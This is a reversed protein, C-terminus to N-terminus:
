FFFTKKEDNAIKFLLFGTAILRASKDEFM